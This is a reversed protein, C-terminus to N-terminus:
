MAAIAAIKQPSQSLFGSWAWVKLALFYVLGAVLGIHLGSIVMLHTTGTQRFIGWQEQTIHSGDGITLAKILAFGPRQSLRGSLEDAVRQRWVSVSRWAAERGLLVPTSGSRVYGTAGIGEAFAWREYDFGGPNFNGHVRKLKVTFLWQQGAKVPQDPFYWSLRLKAPLSQVSPHAAYVGDRPIFDFRVRKEDQEPLDAVIGSVQVEVGELQEPLQDSLRHMAFVIAWLVGVVFFLWQWYRLWAIIGAVVAGVILWKIDPLVSFQQILLLGALFSLASIVM